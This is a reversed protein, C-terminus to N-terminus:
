PNNDKSFANYCKLLLLKYKSYDQFFTKSKIQPLYLNKCTLRHEGRNRKEVKGKITM